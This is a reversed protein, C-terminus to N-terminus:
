VSSQYIKQLCKIDSKLIELFTNKKAVADQIIADFSLLNAADLIWILVRAIFVQFISDRLSIRAAFM